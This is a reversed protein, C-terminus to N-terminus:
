SSLKRRIRSLSEPKIGLYSAIYQLPVHQVLQAQGDIFNLYRQEATLTALEAMRQKDRELFYQLIQITFDKLITSKQFLVDVDDRKVRLVTANTICEITEPSVTRNMFHTYSTFFRPGNNLDTTVEEGKENVHYNRLYGETVFMQHGTITGAAELVTGKPAEVVEFYDYCLQKDEAPMEMIQAVSDFLVQYAPHHM